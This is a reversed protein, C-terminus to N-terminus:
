DPGRARSAGPRELLEARINKNAHHIKKQYYKKNKQWVFFPSQVQPENAPWGNSMQYYICTSLM